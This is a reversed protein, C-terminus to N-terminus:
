IRNSVAIYARKSILLYKKCEFIAEFKVNDAKMAGRINRDNYYRVAEKATDEQDELHMERQDDSMREWTGPNTLNHWVKTYKTSWVYKYKGMPMFVYVYSGYSGAVGESGTFVGRSRVWWGFREAFAKDYVEFIEKQTLKPTRDSRRTGKRTGRFVPNTVTTINFDGIEKLWPKCEKHIIELLDDSKGSLGTITGWDLDAENIYKNLRM